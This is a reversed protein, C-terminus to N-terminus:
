RGHKLWEEIQGTIFIMLAGIGGGIFIGGPGLLMGFGIAFFATTAIWSMGIIKQVLSIDTATTPNETM